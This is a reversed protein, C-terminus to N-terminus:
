DKKPVTARLQSIVGLLEPSQDIQDRLRVQLTTMAALTKRQECAGCGGKARKSLEVLEDKMPKLEPALQGLLPSDLIALLLFDKTLDM